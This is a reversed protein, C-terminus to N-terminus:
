LQTRKDFSNRVGTFSKKMKVQVLVVGLSVIIMGAIEKISIGEGLFIWALIAIQFLMTGNIISSETASLTRLTFNWITFAFATNIIALWLIYVLSEIKLEPLTQTFLGIMVLLFSGFGMSIITVILPKIKGGKNIKRGLIASFANALVGAVMAIIGTLYDSSFQLPFFYIIVGSIFLLIGVRQLSAPVENLVFIAIVAVVLPTLNLILSVTVSPILSLGIFQTGQTLTYFLIGLLFLKRWDKTSLNKIIVINEKKFAFPLLVFFAAAYRLGAFILPPIEMLGIKIIIFSTSWLFTVLLALM